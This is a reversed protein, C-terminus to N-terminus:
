DLGSKDDSDEEDDCYELLRKTLYSSEHFARYITEGNKYKITFCYNLGNPVEYEVTETEYHQWGDMDTLFNTMVPDFEEETETRYTMETDTVTVSDINSFDIDDCYPCHINNFNSYEKGCYKCKKGFLMIDGRELVLLIV